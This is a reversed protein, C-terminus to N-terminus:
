VWSTHLFVGIYLGQGKEVSEGVSHAVNEVPKM